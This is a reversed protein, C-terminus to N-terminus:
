CSSEGAMSNPNFVDRIIDDVINPLIDLKLSIKKCLALERPSIYSDVTMVAVLDHIQQVKDEYKKPPIFPVQEPKEKINHIEEESIGMVKSITVLLDWEDPDLQGDAVAVSLLNKVHSRRVGDKDLKFIKLLDM